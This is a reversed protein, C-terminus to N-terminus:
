GAHVADGYRELWERMPMAQLGYAKRRYVFEWEPHAHPREELQSELAACAAERCAHGSFRRLLGAASAMVDDVFDVCDLVFRRGDEDSAPERDVMIRVLKAVLNESVGRQRAYPLMWVPHYHTNGLLHTYGQFHAMAIERAQAACQRWAGQGWAHLLNSLSSPGCVKRRYLLFLLRERGIEHRVRALRDAGQIDHSAYLRHLFLLDRLPLSECPALADRRAAEHLLRVAITLGSSEDWTRYHVDVKISTGPIVTHLRCIEADRDRASLRRGGRGVIRECRGADIDAVTLPTDRIAHIDVDADGSGFGEVFGGGAFAADQDTLYTSGLVFSRELALSGALLLQHETIKGM